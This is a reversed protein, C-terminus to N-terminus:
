QDLKVKHETIDDLKLGTATTSMEIVQGEAERQRKLVNSAVGWKKKESESTAKPKVCLYGCDGVMCCRTAGPCHSDNSCQDMRERCKIGYGHSSGCTGAKNNPITPTYKATTVSPAETPYSLWGELSQPPTAIRLSAPITHGLATGPAPVSVLAGQPVVPGPANDLAVRRRPISAAAFPSAGAFNAVSSATFPRKSPRRNPARTKKTRGQGGAAVASRPRGVRSTSRSTSESGGGFARTIFAPILSSSSSESTKQTTAGGRRRLGGQRRAYQSHVQGTTLTVQMVSLLLLAATVKM